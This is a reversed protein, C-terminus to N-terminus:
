IYANEDLFKIFRHFCDLCCRCCTSICRTLANGPEDVKSAIWEFMVRLIWVLSVILSGFALSGLNYRLAWGLGKCLSFYGASDQTSTFYWTCVGCIIVYNHLAVIVEYMWIFVFAQAAILGKQM